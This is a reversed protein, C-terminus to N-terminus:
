IRLEGHVPRSRELPKRHVNQREQHIDKHNDEKTFHAQYLFLLALKHDSGLFNSVFDIDLPM